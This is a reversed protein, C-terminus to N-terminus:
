GTPLAVDVAVGDHTNRVRIAGGHANIIERSIALGLGSGGSSRDRARSVRYFREFVFPLDEDSITDGSNVVSVVVGSLGDISQSQSLEVSVRGGRRTHRSANAILNHFVQSLRDEDGRVVTTVPALPVEGNAEKAEVDSTGKGPLGPEFQLAIGRDQVEPRHIAMVRQLVPYLDVDDVAMGAEGAELLSLDQLDQVLRTLRLTEEYVSVLNEESAPIVGDLVGELYGRMTSLPTRLEHAIDAVMNRRLGEVRELSAAMHNFTEALEGIEDNSTVVVREGFDGSAMRRAADNIQRLPLSIRSSVLYSFSAALLVAIFGAQFLVRNVADLFVKDSGTMEQLMEAIHRATVGGRLGVQHLYRETVQKSALLGSATQAVIVVAIFAVLIKVQISFGDLFDNIRRLDIDLEM